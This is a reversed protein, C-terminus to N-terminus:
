IEVPRFRKVGGQAVFFFLVKLSAVMGNNSYETRFYDRATQGTKDKTIAVVDGGACFAKPSNGVVYMKLLGLSFSFSLRQCCDAGFREEM